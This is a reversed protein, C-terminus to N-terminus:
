RVGGARDSGDRRDLWRMFVARRDDEDLPGWVGSTAYGHTRFELELCERQIPCGACIPAALARDARDDGTWDPLEGSANLWGCVGRRRVAEVLAEDPVSACEDLDAAIRECFEEDRSM